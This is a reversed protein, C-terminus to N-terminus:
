ADVAIFRGVYEDLDVVGRQVPKAVTVTPPPPAAQPQQGQGCALLAPALLLFTAGLRAFSATIMPDTHLSQQHQLAAPYLRPDAIAFTGTLYLRVARHM